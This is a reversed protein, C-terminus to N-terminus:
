SLDPVIGPALDDIWTARDHDRRLNASVVRAEEFCQGNLLARLFEKSFAPDRYPDLLNPYDRQGQRFLIRAEERKNENWFEIAQRLLGHGRDLNRAAEM